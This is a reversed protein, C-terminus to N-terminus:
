LNVEYHIFANGSFRLQISLQDSHFMAVFKTSITLDFQFMPVPNSLMIGNWYKGVNQQITQGHKSLVVSPITINWGHINYASLFQSVLLDETEPSLGIYVPSSTGSCLNVAFCMPSSVSMTEPQYQLVHGDITASITRAYRLVSYRRRARRAEKIKLNECGELSTVDVQSLLETKYDYPAFTQIGSDLRSDTTINSIWQPLLPQIRILYTFALAHTALFNRIDSAVFEYHYCESCRPGRTATHCNFRRYNTCSFCQTDLRLPLTVSNDKIVAGGVSFPMNFGGSGVFVVGPTADESWQCASYLRIPQRARCIDINIREGDCCSERLLGVQARISDFYSTPSAEGGAQSVFVSSDPVDLFTIAAPGSLQYNISYFGPENASINFVIANRSSNLVFEEQSIELRSKIKIVLTSDPQAKVEVTFQQRENLNPISSM